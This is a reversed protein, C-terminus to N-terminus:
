DGIIIWGTGYENNPSDSRYVSGAGYPNNVSDPSYESGYRGYPNSISDPSYPNNSLEGRYNGSRDYLKPANFGTDGTQYGYNQRVQPASYPSTYGPPSAARNPNYPNATFDGLYDGALCGAAFAFCVIAIAITFCIVAIILYHKRM